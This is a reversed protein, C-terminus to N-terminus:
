HSATSTDALLLQWAEGEENVIAQVIEIAKNIGYVLIARSM